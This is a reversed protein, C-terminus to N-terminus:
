FTGYIIHNCNNCKNNTLNNEIESKISIQNQHNKILIKNCNPCITPYTMLTNGGYIYPINYGRAIQVMKKLFQESTAEINSMKYNPYFKSLHWVKVHYEELKKALEKIIEKTHIKEILLTTIEVHNGQEILYKIGDLVPLLKGKCIKKYYEDNGKLDINFADILPSLKERSEKSFSGNTVMITKIDHQKALKAVDIVYDQWVIPESYTFSISPLNYKIAKNILQKPSIYNLNNSRKKQSLQWNQCFDCKFNCGAEALSLTRTAPLFHYLPKKEIPDIAIAELYGYNINLLKNEKNEIVNCYGKQNNKIDCHRYCFNCIM